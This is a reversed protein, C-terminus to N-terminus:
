LYECNNIQHRHVCVHRLRVYMCVSIRDIIIGYTTISSKLDIYWTCDTYLPTWIVSKLNIDKKLLILSVM